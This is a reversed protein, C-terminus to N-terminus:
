SNSGSFRLAGNQEEEYDLGIQSFCELVTRNSGKNQIAPENKYILKM